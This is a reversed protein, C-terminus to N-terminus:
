FRFYIFSQTGQASAQYLAILGLIAASTFVFRTEQRRNWPRAGLVRETLRERALQIVLLIALVALCKITSQWTLVSYGVRGRSLAWVMKGATGPGAAFLGWTLLVFLQTCSWGAMTRLSGSRESPTGRRHTGALAIGHAAGWLVYHAAAGHWMGGLCMTVLLNIRTRITGKRSGGLPIYLYDRLWSSLSIHWRGWFDRLSTALYPSRFNIPVDYGLLAASGRAIDTYGSFDFYILLYFALLGTWADLATLTSPSGLFANSVPALIADAVAVKKFLGLAIWQAGLAAREATLMSPREVQPVFQQYRKIPGAIQTPFFAPFLAFKIPHRVPTGGRWVDVQYHIFEFVFFSIGIPLLVSVVLRTGGFGLAHAVKDVVQISFGLYKFLGLALLNTGIAFALIWPRRPVRSGMWWGLFYNATTLGVILALYPLSFWAYFLYSLILLFAPRHRDTLLWYCVLAISFFGLYEASNFLM